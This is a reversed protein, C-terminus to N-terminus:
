EEGESRNCPPRAGSLVPLVSEIINYNNFFVTRIYLIDLFYKKLDKKLFIFIKERIVWRRIQLSMRGTM